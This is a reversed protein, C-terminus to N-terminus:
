AAGLTRSVIQDLDQLEFPKGLNAEAGIEAARAEADEAATLVVIPIARGYRARLTRAFTWGDMVPMRMDLLILSPRERAVHELAEEGHKAGSVRIGRITLAEEILALLDPDDDVVLVLPSSTAADLTIPHPSIV